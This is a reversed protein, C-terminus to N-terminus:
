CGKDISKGLLWVTGAIFALETIVNDGSYEGMPTHIAM